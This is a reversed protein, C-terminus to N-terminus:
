LLLGKAEATGSMSVHAVNHRNKKTRIKICAAEHGYILTEEGEEVAIRSCRQDYTRRRFLLPVTRLM